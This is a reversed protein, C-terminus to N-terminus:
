RIEIVSHGKLHLAVAKRKGKNTLRVLKLSTLETWMQGSFM